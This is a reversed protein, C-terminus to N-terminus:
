NRFTFYLIKLVTLISYIYRHDLLIKPYSCKYQDKIAHDGM